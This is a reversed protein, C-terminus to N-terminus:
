RFEWPKNSSHAPAYWYRFNSDGVGINFNQAHPRQNLARGLVHRRQAERAITASDTVARLIPSGFGTFCRSEGLITPEVQLIPPVPMKAKVYEAKSPNGGCNSRFAPLDDALATHFGAASFAVLLGFLTSNLSM